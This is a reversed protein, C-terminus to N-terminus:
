AVRAFLCKMYAGQKFGIPHDLAHGTREIEQLPRKASAAAGKIVRYFDEAAVQSSCSAAVLTGGRRLVSLGLRALRDYAALARAVEDRRRAFAPPDLIVMDYAAGQSALQQLLVFADGQMTKHRAAAVAPFERNLEFHRKAAALAPRSLDLSVVERAGGRAAYLSFGGTYAFVNLVSKSRALREVRERNERQDLFFGTKQGHVPDVEFTFGNELFMLPGDLSSGHLITGDDLGYLADVEKQVQRSLRLIFREGGTEDPLVRLVSQLHVIWATTYVKLVYSDGYRDIILGPLGDNEGHVLRYGSTTSGRLTQRLAAAQAIRMAFWDRDIPTPRGHHLVRVRLPSMPDYLGIALFRKKRDFIVALDGPRGEHSQRQIADAYLWPHGGRLAREAEASIRIAIRKESPDPVCSLVKSNSKMYDL